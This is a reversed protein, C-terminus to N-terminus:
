WGGMNVMNAMTYYNMINELSSNTIFIDVFTDEYLWIHSKKTCCNRSVEIQCLMKIVSKLYWSYNILMWHLSHVITDLNIKTTFGNTDSLYKMQVQRDRHPLLTFAPASLRIWRVTVRRAWHSRLMASQCFVRPVYRM